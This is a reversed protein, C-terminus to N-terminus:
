EGARSGQAGRVLGTMNFPRPVAIPNGFAFTQHTTVAVAEFSGARPNYFLEKGDPSWLQHHPSGGNALLQYKAGTAPFPQVYVTVNPGLDDSSYAGWRGDPSFVAGLVTAAQVGGFPAERRGEVTFTWLSSAGGAASTFLLM